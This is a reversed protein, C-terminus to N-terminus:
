AAAAVAAGLATGLQALSRRSFVIPLAREGAQRRVKWALAHNVQDVFVVILRTDRPIERHCFSNKRGPWHRIDAYGRAALFERYSNIRDGGVILVAM